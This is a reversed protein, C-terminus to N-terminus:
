HVAARLIGQAELEQLKRAIATHLASLLMNGTCHHKMIYESVGLEKAEEEIHYVGFGSLIVMPMHPSQEHIARINDSGSVDPLMLDLLVADYDKHQLAELAAKLSEVHNLRFLEGDQESAFMEQTLLADTPDDEVYLVHIHEKTMASNM